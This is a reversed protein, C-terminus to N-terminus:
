KKMILGLVGALVEGGRLLIMGLTLLPHRILIKWHKFYAPKVPFFQSVAVAPRKALYKKFARSYYFKKSIRDMFKTVGEDHNIHSKIKGISGRHNMRYHFDSDEVGVMAPDYGGIATADKKRFFRCCENMGKELYITVYRDL